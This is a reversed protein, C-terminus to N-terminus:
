PLQNDWTVLNDSSIEYRPVYIMRIWVRLNSYEILNKRCKSLEFLLSTILRFVCPNLLLGKYKPILNPISYQFIFSLHNPIASTELPNYVLLKSVFGLQTGHKQCIAHGLRSNKVCTCRWMPTEFISKQRSAIKINSM